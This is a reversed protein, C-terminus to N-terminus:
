SATWWVVIARGWELLHRHGEEEAIAGVTNAFELAHEFNDFDLVRKLKKIGAEEIM